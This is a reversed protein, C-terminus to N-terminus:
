PTEGDAEGAHHGLPLTFRFCTRGRRSEVDITGGHDNVIRHTITLGLGTGTPKTSFFADFVPADASPLGPGDDEVELVVQRPQRRARVLIRGGGVPGLAEVANQLVNLLVQELKQADGSLVLPQIPFDLEITSGSAAAQPAVLERARAALKKLDVPSRDLPQPRAFDLFESVLRALRKLEDSVVTAAELMESRDGDKKIARELFSVHLQAGNLPNRIEHALGAALTGLAALKEQQHTRISQARAETVDAGIAYLVIDHREPPVRALTWRVDRVRGTRTALLTDHVRVADDGRLMAEILAGDIPRLEAPVLTEVFPAGTVEDAEFGTTRQAERNFLLIKGQGDLGVILNPSVETAAEYRRLVRAAEAQSGNKALEERKKARDELSERYSEVMIALELDLARSLASRTPGAEPGLAEDAVAELSSRIVSMATFMYRQPLGVRVHARGIAQTEEYHEAGYTGSLLRELWAALSRQLREIQPEGTFVAHAEEHERTREYFERAIRPFHPAAVPKFAALLRADDAGFRVYRQLEQFRTETM